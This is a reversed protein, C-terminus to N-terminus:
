QTPPSPTSTVGYCVWLAVGAQFQKDKRAVTQLQNPFTARMLCRSGQRLMVMMMMMMEGPIAKGTGGM